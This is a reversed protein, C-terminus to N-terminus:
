PSIGSRGRCPRPLGQLGRHFVNNGRSHSPFATGGWDNRTYRSYSTGARRISPRSLAPWGQKQSMLGTERYAALLAHAPTRRATLLRELPMLAQAAAAKGARALARKAKFLVESAGERITEDDFGVLAARRYLTLDTEEGRETLDAALCAGELLHCCAALLDLSPMADFAKYEIRGVESPLRAM